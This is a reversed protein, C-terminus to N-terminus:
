KEGAEVYQLFLVSVRTAIGSATSRGFFIASRQTGVVQSYQKTPQPISIPTLFPLAAAARGSADCGTLWPLSQGFPEGPM